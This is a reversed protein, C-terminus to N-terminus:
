EVLPDDLVGAAPKAVPLIRPRESGALELMALCLFISNTRLYRRWLRRPEQILRHLWQLGSRKVWTPSDTLRGTHFDFAAGVGIMIKVPLMDRYKRMFIEQKPTSLGIWMFDPRVVRLMQELDTEETQSLSRFPPTYTGVINSKPFRKKLSSQLEQAVGVEGGYLFHRAGTGESAQFVAFMFEPGFVRDMSVFGQHRGIWVTPMGDPLVFSADRYARALEINRRAEVIGHAGALCVYSPPDRLAEIVRLVALQMNVPEIAVGFVNAKRSEGLHSM